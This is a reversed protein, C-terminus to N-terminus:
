EAPTLDGTIWRISAPTFLMVLTVLALAALPVAFAPQDSTFLYYSVPLLLIQAVLSIARGWRRGSLLAIGGVLVGGFIIGFWAATGYGSIADEHHGGLQRIVLIAAVILAISGELATLGGAIRIPTPPADVASEAGGPGPARRKSM